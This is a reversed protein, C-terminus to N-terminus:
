THVLARRAGSPGTNSSVPLGAILREAVSSRPQKSFAEKSPNRSLRSGLQDANPPSRQSHSLPAPIRNRFTVQPSAVKLRAHCLSLPVTSSRIGLALVSVSKFNEVPQWTTI